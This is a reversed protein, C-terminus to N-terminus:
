SALSIRDGVRTKTTRIRGSKLEIAYSAKFFIPSLQFPKIDAVIGEVNNEANVFIVDIPFRMFFMHISQCPKIILAQDETIIRRNLLGVGRTALTDAIKVDSAIVTNKTLNLIKM